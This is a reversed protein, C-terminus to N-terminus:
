SARTKEADLKRKAARTWSRILQAAAGSTATGRVGCYSLEYSGNRFHLGAGTISRWRALVEDADGKKNNAFFALACELNQSM